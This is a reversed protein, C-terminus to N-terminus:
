TLIFISPSHYRLSHFSFAFLFMSCVDGVDRGESSFAGGFKVYPIRSLIPVRIIRKRRLIIWGFTLHFKRPRSLSKPHPQFSVSVCLMVDWARM